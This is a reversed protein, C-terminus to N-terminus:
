RHPQKNETKRNETCNKSWLHTDLELKSAIALENLHFIRDLYDTKTLPADKYLYIKLGSRQTRALTYSKSFETGLVTYLRRAVLLKRQSYNKEGVYLGYRKIRQHLCWPNSLPVMTCWHHFKELCKNSKELNLFRCAYHDRHGSSKPTQTGRTTCCDALANIKGDSEEKNWTYNVAWFTIWSM